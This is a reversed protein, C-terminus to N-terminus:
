SIAMATTDDIGRVISGVWGCARCGEGNCADHEETVRTSGHGVEVLTDHRMVEVTGDKVRFAWQYYRKNCDEGRFNAARKVMLALEEESIREASLVRRVQPSISM